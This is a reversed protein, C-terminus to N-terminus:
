AGDLPTLRWPQRTRMMANLLTLLKRMCAVLAVKPLKGRARLAAYAARFLPNCRVAVLAAMYLVARVNARGGWCSRKGRHGGSDHALPAVGVLAAVEKRTARGLEPLCARLTVATVRGVGPVSTMLALDDACSTDRKAAADLQRDILRLHKRLQTTVAQISARIATQSRTVQKLRTAEASIMEVLQRRRSVLESLEVSVPDPAERVEPQIRRAFECLVRADIRDTKALRGMAKAFDRVQRPNVAVAAVGAGRLAGLVLREYGGSAEMVVRKPASARVKEVFAAVAGEENAVQDERGDGWAVDLRAKSVDIGIYNDKM